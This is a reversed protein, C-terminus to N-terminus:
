LDTEQKPQVQPHEFPKVPGELHKKWYAHYFREIEGAAYAGDRFLQSCYKALHNANMFRKLSLDFPDEKRTRTKDYMARYINDPLEGKEIMAYFRDIWDVLKKKDLYAPNWEAYDYYLRFILIPPAKKNFYYEICEIDDKTTNKPDLYGTTYMRIIWNTLLSLKDNRESYGSRKSYGILPAKNGKFYIKQMYTSDLTDWQGEAYGKERKSM